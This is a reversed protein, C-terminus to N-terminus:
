VMILKNTQRLFLWVLDFLAFGFVNIKAQKNLSDIWVLGFWVKEVIFEFNVAQFLILDFTGLLKSSSRM